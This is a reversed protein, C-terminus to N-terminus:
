EYYYKYHLYHPQFIESYIFVIQNYIAYTTSNAIIVYAINIVKKCNIDRDYDFGNPDEPYTFRKYIFNIIDQLSTPDDIGEITIQFQNANIQANPIIEKIIKSTLDIPEQTPDDHRAIYMHYSRGEGYDIIFENKSAFEKNVYPLPKLPIRGHEFQDNLSM